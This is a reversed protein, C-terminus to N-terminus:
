HCGRRRGYGRPNCPAESIRALRVYAEVGLSLHAKGAVVELPLVCMWGLFGVFIGGGGAQSGGWVGM